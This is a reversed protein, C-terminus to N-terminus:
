FGGGLMAFLTAIAVLLLLLGIWGGFTSLVGDVDKDTQSHGEYAYDINAVEGDTTNTTNTFALEGTSSSWSYDTGAVLENGDSDRVTVSDSYVDAQEGVAVTADYDVTIQEGEVPQLTQAGAFGINAAPLVLGLLIAAFGVAFLAGKM